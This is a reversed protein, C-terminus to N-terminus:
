LSIVLSQYGLKRALSFIRRLVSSSHFHKDVYLFNSFGKDIGTEIWEFQTGKAVRFNSM